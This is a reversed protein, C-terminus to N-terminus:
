RAWTVYSGASGYPHTEVDGLDVSERERDDWRAGDKYSVDDWESVMHRQKQQSPSAVRPVAARYPQHRNDDDDYPSPNPAAVFAGIPIADPIYRRPAADFGAYSGDFKGLTTPTRDGAGSGAVKWPMSSTGNATSTGGSGSIYGQDESTVYDARQGSRSPAARNNLLVLLTNAYIGPLVMTPCIFYDTGPMGAFLALGIIAVSASFTNTEIILRIVGRVISQTQPESAQTLLYTMTVAIMLDAVADGVLWMYVLLTRVRDHQENSAIFAIIGGGMGGAAQLFSIAAILFSWWMASSRFVSIRYCFFLQVALTIISGMFPTYFPSFRAQGFKVIDGFGAAFWYHADAANLCACLVMTLFVFYVLSKIAARDKPFMRQIFLTGFLFFNLLTGILQSSTIAGINPPLPVPGPPPPDAM